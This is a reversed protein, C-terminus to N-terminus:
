QRRHDPALLTLVVSDTFLLRGGPRLLRSWASLAAFRDGLHSIADICVAFDFSEDEFPLRNRCDCVVFHARDALGRELALRQAYEIGPAEIDVGTLKCGTSAVLALSPGGSGCAIDLVDCSSTGILEAIQAQEDLTRWGQQGLDEGYVERWIEAATDTGLRAYQASYFEFRHHIRDEAMGNM